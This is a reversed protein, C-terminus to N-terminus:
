HCPFAKQLAQMVMEHAPKQLYTPNHQAFTLVIAAIKKFSRLWDFCYLNFSAQNGQRGTALGETALAFQLKARENAHQAAGMIGNLYAMCIFADNSPTAVDFRKDLALLAQECSKALSMGNTITQVESTKDAEAWASSCIFAVLLCLLFPFLNSQTSTNSAINISTYSSNNISSNSSINTSRLKHM